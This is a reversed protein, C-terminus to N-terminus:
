WNKGNYDQIDLLGKIDRWKYEVNSGKGINLHELNHAKIVEYEAGFVSKYLRAGAEDIIMFIHYSWNANSPHYYGLEIIEKRM